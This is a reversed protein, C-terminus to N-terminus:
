KKSTPEHPEIRVKIEAVDDFEHKVREEIQKAIEDAERVTMDGDVVVHM